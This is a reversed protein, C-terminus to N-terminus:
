STIPIWLESEMTESSIPYHSARMQKLTDWGTSLSGTAALYSSLQLFKENQGRKFTVQKNTVIDTRFTSRPRRTGGVALGLQKRLQLLKRFGGAKRAPNADVLSAAQVLALVTRHDHHVRFGDPVAPDRRVIRFFNNGFVEYASPGNLPQAEAVLAHVRLTAGM